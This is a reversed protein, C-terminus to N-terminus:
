VDSNGWSIWQNYQDQTFGLKGMITYTPPTFNSGDVVHYGNGWVPDIDRHYNEVTATPDVVPADQRTACDWGCAIYGAADMWSDEKEKAWSIRSLKLLTMFVAVEHPEFPVGKWASWLDATRRFDDIPDGYQVNRDGNVLKEAGQLIDSRANM